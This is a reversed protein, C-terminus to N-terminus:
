ISNSFIEEARDLLRTTIDDTSELAQRLAVQVQEQDNLRGFSMMLDRRSALTSVLTILQAGLQGLDTKVAQARVIRQDWRRVLGDVEDRSFRPNRADLDRAQHMKEIHGDLADFLRGGIQLDDALLRIEPMFGDVLDMQAELNEAPPRPEIPATAAETTPPGAIPNTATAPVATAVPTNNTAALQTRARSQVATMRDVWDARVREFAAVANQYSRATDPSGLQPLGDIMGSTCGILTGALLLPLIVSRRSSNLKPTM